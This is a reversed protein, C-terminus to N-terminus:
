GHGPDEDAAHSAPTEAEQGLDEDRIGRFAYWVTIVTCVIWPFVVGGIVWSPIGYLLVPTEGRRYGFLASFGVTWACALVWVMITFRAERRSSQLVASSDM